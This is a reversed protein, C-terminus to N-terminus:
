RGWSVSARDCALFDRAMVGIRKAVESLNINPQMPRLCRHMRGVEAELAALLM